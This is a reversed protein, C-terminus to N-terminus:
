TTQECKIKFNKLCYSELTTLLTSIKLKQVEAYKFSDQFISYMLDLNKKRVEQEMTFIKLFQNM